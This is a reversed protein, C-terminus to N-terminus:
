LVQLLCETRKRMLCHGTDVTHQWLFIGQFLLSFMTGKWSLLSPVSLAAPRVTLSQPM